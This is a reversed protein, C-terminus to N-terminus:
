TLAAAVAAFPVLALEVAAAVAAAGTWGWFWPTAVEIAARWPGVVGGYEGATSRVTRVVQRLGGHRLKSLESRAAKPQALVRGPVDPLAALDRLTQGAHWLWAAPAALVVGLVLCGLTGWPWETVLATAIAAWLAFAAIAGGVAAISCATAVARTAPAIRRIANIARETPTTPPNM